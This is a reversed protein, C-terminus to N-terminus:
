NTWTKRTMLDKNYNVIKEIKKNKM